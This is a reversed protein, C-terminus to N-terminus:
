KKKEGYFVNLEHAHLWVKVKEDPHKYDEKMCYKWVICDDYSLPINESTGKWEKNEKMKQKLFNVAANITSEIKQGRAEAERIVYNFKAISLKSEPRDVFYLDKTSEVGFRELVEEENYPFTVM